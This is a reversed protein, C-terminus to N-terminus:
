MGNPINPTTPNGRLFRSGGGVSRSLNKDLALVRTPKLNGTILKGSDEALDIMGDLNNKVTGLPSPLAQSPLSAMEGSNATPRARSGDFRVPSSLASNAEEVDAFQLATKLEWLNDSHQNDIEKLPLSRGKM